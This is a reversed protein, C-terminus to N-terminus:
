LWQLAGIANCSKDTHKQYIQKIVFRTM